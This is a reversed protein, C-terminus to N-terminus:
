REGPKDGGGDDLQWITTDDEIIMQSLDDQEATIMMITMKKM